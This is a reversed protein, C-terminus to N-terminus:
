SIFFNGCNDVLLPSHDVEELFLLYKLNLLNLTKM